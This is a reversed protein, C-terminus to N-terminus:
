KNYSNQIYGTDNKRLKPDTEFDSSTGHSIGNMAVNHM